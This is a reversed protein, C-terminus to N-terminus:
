TGAAAARAQEAAHGGIPATATRTCSRAGPGSSKRLLGGRRRSDRRSSRTSCRSARRGRGRTRSGTARSRRGAASCTRSRRRRSNSLEHMPVGLFLHAGIPTFDVQICQAAGEAAVFSSREDLGAVFSDRVDARARRARRRDELPSGFNVIVPVRARRFRSGSSPPRFRPSTTGRTGTPRLGRLRLAPRRSSSSGAASSPTRTCSGRSSSTWLVLSAWPRARASVGGGDARRGVREDALELGLHSDGRARGVDDREDM